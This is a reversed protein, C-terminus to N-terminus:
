IEWRLSAIEFARLRLAVWGDVVELEQTERELLDTRAVRRAGDPPQVRVEGESEGWSWFRLVEGNGDAARKYASLVIQSGDIRFPVLRRPLEGQVFRDRELRKWGDRQSHIAKWPSRNTDRMVARGDRLEYYGIDAHAGYPDPSLPHDGHVNAAPSQRYAAALQPVRASRWDGGHALLAYDVTQRGPLQAEPTMWTSCLVTSDVSRLLTLEVQTAGGDDTSLAYEHLGRTLISLGGDARSVDVFSRLPHSQQDLDGPWRDPANAHVAFAADAHATGPQCGTPFIARLRQHTARNDLEARVQVLPSGVEVTLRSVLELTRQGVSRGNDRDYGAPVRLPTTVEVVARLPGSSVLRVQALADRSSRRRARPPSEFHYGGGIDADHAFHHIGAFRLGSRLDTLDLTGNAAIRLEVLGNDIHEVTAQVPAPLLDRGACHRSTAGSEAWALRRVECPRLDPVYVCGRCEYYVSEGNTCVTKMHLVRDLQVPCVLGAEDVFCSHDEPPQALRIVFDIVRHGGNLGAYVVATPVGDRLADNNLYDLGSDAIDIGLEVAERFRTNVDDHVRDQSCGCISDHAHNHLISRWARELFPTAGPKGLRAAIADLPEALNELHMQALENAIKTDVRSSLTGHLEDIALRGRLQGRHTTLTEDGVEDKVADVFDQLSGHHIEVDPMAGRLADLIPGIDRQLWCHDIGHPVLICDPARTQRTGSEILSRLRTILGDRDEPPPLFMGGHYGSPLHIALVRSGDPAEWFFERQFDPSQSLAVPLGRSFEFNDIGVGRLIQPVQEVHGFSDPVYGVNPFPAGWRRCDEWGRALNRILSEGDPLFMDPMTFWPGIVLQGSAILRRLDAAREPRIELYDELICTQGDFVFRNFSDPKELLELIEDVTRVLRYQFQNRSLYWERDWHTHSFIFVRM